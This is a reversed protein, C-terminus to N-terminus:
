NKIKGARLLQDIAKDALAKGLQKSDSLEAQIREQENLKPFLEAKFQEFSKFTQRIQENAM